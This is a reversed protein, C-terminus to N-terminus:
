VKKRTFYQELMLEALMFALMAWFLNRWIERGYRRQADLDTYDQWSHVVAANMQQAVKQLADESLLKLESERRSTNVVFHIPQAGPPELVYLGPRDTLSWEAVGRLGKDQIPIEHRAGEADTLVANMGALSRPLFATLTKGVDVNRPPEVSAAAYTVLRQMLPLYFPRMPLNSWADDCATACEIVRGKGFRKEVLFPGGVDLRALVTLGTDASGQAAQGAREDLQYWTKIQGDSLSGNRPDNFLDLAPHDYHQALVSATQDSGGGAGAVDGLPLPLLGGGDHFLARNYWAPNVKAGPFVFLANGEGVFRQLQDLQQDTLESVNALVVVRKDSLAEANLQEPRVVSAAILDAMEVKGASFPNLAIELFDTEGKLPLPDPDGNVLLVPIHDWVPVSVLNRNDAKLADAEVFAEIVHSGAHQFTHTFLVQGDERPGLSIETASQVAGDVRFHVRLNPYPTSGHNRVNARVQVPQGVGVVYRSLDLSQVSVNDTAETGVQFFTLTPSVPLSKILEVLRARAPADDDQWDGAQFDSVVVMDRKAHQMDKLRQIASEFSRSVDAAGFGGHLKALDGSVRRLDSSPAESGATRGGAMLVVSVDSGRPLEGVVNAAQQKAKALNTEGGASAEMSYSNDLMVVTSSKADQALARWGTLVPRAMLLALMLPISARVVLLIIQEIRVRKRNVRIVPELLHMAGWRVVRFRSRNLLHIILPISFALTGILLTANLFSM